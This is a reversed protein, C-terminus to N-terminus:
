DLGTGPGSCHFWEAMAVFLRTWLLGADAPNGAVIVVPLKLGDNV